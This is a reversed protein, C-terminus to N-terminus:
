NDCDTKSDLKEQMKLWEEKRINVWDSGFIETLMQWEREDEEPDSKPTKIKGCGAFIEKLLNDMEQRTAIKEEESMWYFSGPVMAEQRALEEHEKDQSYIKDVISSPLVKMDHLLGCTCPAYKYFEIARHTECDGHHCLSLGKIVKRFYRDRINELQQRYKFM